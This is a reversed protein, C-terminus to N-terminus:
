LSSASGRFAFHATGGQIAFDIRGQQRLETLNSIVDSVSLGMAKFLMHEPIRSVPEGGGIILQTGFLVVDPPIFPRRLKKRASGTAYGCDRILSLYHTAVNRRTGQKWTNIEPTQKSLRELEVEIDHTEAVYPLSALRHVLWESGLLLVLADNWLLMVYALLRKQTEDPTDQIARVL